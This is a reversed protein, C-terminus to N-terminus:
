LNDGKATAAATFTIRYDALKIAAQGSVPSPTVNSISLNYGEFAFPATGTIFDHSTTIKGKTLTTRVGVSGAQICTVDTPCRSDQMLSVIKVTIGGVVGSQAIAITKQEPGKVRTGGTTAATGANQSTAPNPVTDTTPAEVVAERHRGAIIIWAGIVIVLVILIAILSSKKM